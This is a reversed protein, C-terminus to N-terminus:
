RVALRQIPWPHRITLKPRHKATPRAIREWSFRDKQSGRRMISLWVRKLRVAFRNLYRSSTPVAHYNLWGDVVKGLWKATDTVDSHM